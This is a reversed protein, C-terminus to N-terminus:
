CAIRAARSAATHQAPAGQCGEDLARRPPPEHPPEGNWVGDSREDRTQEAANPPISNSTCSGCSSCCSSRRTCVDHLRVIEDFNFTHSLQKLFCRFSPTVHQRRFESRARVGFINVIRELRKTVKEHALIRERAERHVEHQVKLASIHFNLHVPWRMEIPRRKARVPSRAELLAHQARHSVFEEAARRAKGGSPNAESGAPASPM